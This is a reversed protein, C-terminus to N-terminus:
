TKLLLPDKGNMIKNPGHGQLAAAGVRAAGQNFFRCPRFCAQRHTPQVIPLGTTATTVITTWCTVSTWRCRQRKAEAEIRPTSNVLALRQKLPGDGAPHSQHCICCDPSMPFLFRVHRRHWTREQHAGGHGPVAAAARGPAGM